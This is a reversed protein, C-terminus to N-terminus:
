SGCTLASARSSAARRGPDSSSPSSAACDSGPRAHGPSPLYSGVICLVIKATRKAGPSKAPISSKCSLRGAGRGAPPSKPHALPAPPSRRPRPRPRPSPRIIKCIRRYPRIRNQAVRENDQLWDSERAARASGARTSSPSATNKMPFLKKRYSCMDRGSHTAARPPATDGGIRITTPASITGPM